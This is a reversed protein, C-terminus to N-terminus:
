PQVAGEDLLARVRRLHASGAHSAQLKESARVAEARRGLKVLAEIRLV